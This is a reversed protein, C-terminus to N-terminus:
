VYSRNSREANPSDVTKQNYIVSIKESNIKSELFKVIGKKRESTITKEFSARVAGLLLDCLQLVDYDKSNVGEIVPLGHIHTSLYIKFERDQKENYSDFYFHIDDGKLVNDLFSKTYIKFRSWKKLNSLPIGAQKKDVVLCHFEINEIKLFIDLWEKAVDARVSSIKEFKIENKFNHKNRSEELLKHLNVVDKVKILGLALFKSKGDTGSEDFFTYIKLEKTRIM